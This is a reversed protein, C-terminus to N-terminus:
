QQLCFNAPNQELIKQSILCFIYVLCKGNISIHNTHYEYLMHLNKLTVDPFPHLQQLLKLLSTPYESNQKLKIITSATIVAAAAVVVVVVV